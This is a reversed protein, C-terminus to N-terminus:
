RIETEQDSQEPTPPPLKSLAHMSGPILRYAPRHEPEYIMPSGIVNGCSACALGVAENISAATVQAQRKVLDVPWVIRDAYCRILKGPGDKQYVM